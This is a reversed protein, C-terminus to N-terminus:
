NRETKDLAVEMETVLFFLETRIDTMAMLDNLDDTEKWKEHAAHLDELRANVAQELDMSRSCTSGTTACSM